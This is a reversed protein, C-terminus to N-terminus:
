EIGYKKIVDFMAEIIIDKLTSRHTINKVAELKEKLDRDINLVIAAQEPKTKRPRGRKVDKKEVQAIEKSDQVIEPQAALRERRSESPTGITVSSGFNKDMFTDFGTKKKTGM